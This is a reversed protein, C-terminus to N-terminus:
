FRITASDPRYITVTGGSVKMSDPGYLNLTGGSGSSSGGCGSGGSSSNTGNTNSGGSGSNYAAYGAIITNVVAIGLDVCAWGTGGKVEALESESVQVAYSDVKLEDLSLKM